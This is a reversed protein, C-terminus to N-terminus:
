CQTYKQYEYEWEEYPYVRYDCEFVVLNKDTLPNPYDVRNTVTIEGPLFTLESQTFDYENSSEVYERADEKPIVDVEQSTCIFVFNDDITVNLKLLAYESSELFDLPADLYLSTSMPLIQIIKTGPTWEKLRYNENSKVSRYVTLKDGRYSSPIESKIKRSVNYLDLIRDSMSQYNNICPTGIPTKAIVGRYNYSTARRKLTKWEPTEQLRCIDKIIQEPSERVEM